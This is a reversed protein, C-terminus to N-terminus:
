GDDLAMNLAQVAGFDPKVSWTIYRANDMKLYCEGRGQQKVARVGAVIMAEDRTLWALGVIGSVTNLSEAATM